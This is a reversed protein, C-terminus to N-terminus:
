TLQIKGSCLKFLSYLFIALSLLFLYQYCSTKTCLCMQIYPILRQILQIQTCIGLSRYIIRFVSEFATLSNCVTISVSTDYNASCADANGDCSIFNFTNSAGQTCINCLSFQSSLVVIGVNQRQAASSCANYSSHIDYCSPQISFKFASTVLSSNVQQIVVLCKRCHGSIYLRLAARFCLQLFM